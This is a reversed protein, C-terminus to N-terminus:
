IEHRFENFVLLEEEEPQEPEEIQDEPVDALILEFDVAPEEKINLEIAMFDMWFCYIEFDQQFHIKKNIFQILEEDDEANIISKM